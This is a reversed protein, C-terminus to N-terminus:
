ESSPKTDLESPGSEDKGSSKPRDKPVAGTTDDTRVQGYTSRKFPARLQDLQRHLGQVLDKWKKLNAPTLPSKDVKSIEAFKQAFGRLSAVLENSKEDNIEDGTAPLSAVLEAVDQSRISALKWDKTNVSNQLESLLRSAYAGVFREYSEKSEALTKKAAEQAAEAARKTEKIQHIAIWFGGIGVILGFISLVFGAITFFDSWAPNLAFLSVSEGM